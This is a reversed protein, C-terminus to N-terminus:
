LVANSNMELVAHLYSVEQEIRTELCAIDKAKFGLILDNKFRAMSSGAHAKSKQLKEVTDVLPQITKETSQLCKYITTPPAPFHQAQLTSQQEMLNRTDSLLTELRELLDILRKLEQAAGKVNRVFSKVTNISDIIQITLSVVAMGSAVASLGDM